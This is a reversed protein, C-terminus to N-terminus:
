VADFLSISTTAVQNREQDKREPNRFNNLM